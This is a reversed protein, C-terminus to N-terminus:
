CAILLNNFIHELATLASLKEVAQTLAKFM